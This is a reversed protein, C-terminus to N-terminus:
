IVAVTYFTPSSCVNIFYDPSCMEPDIRNMTWFPMPKKLIMSFILICATIGLAGGADFASSMTYAHKKWWAKRYRKVIGNVLIAVLFPTLLDSRLSGVQTSMVAMIPINIM